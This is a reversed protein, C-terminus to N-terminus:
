LLILEMGAHHLIQSRTCSDHISHAYRPLPPLHSIIQTLLFSKIPKGKLFNTFELNNSSTPLVLIYKIAIKQICWFENSDSDWHKKKDAFKQAIYIYLVKWQFFHGLDALSILFIISIAMKIIFNWYAALFIRPNLKREIKM